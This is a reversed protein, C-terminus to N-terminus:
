VLILRFNPPQVVVRLFEPSLGCMSCFGSLCLVLRSATIYERYGTIDLSAHANRKEDLMGRRKGGSTSSRKPRLATM